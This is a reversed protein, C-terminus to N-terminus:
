ARAAALAGGPFAGLSPMSSNAIDSFEELIEVVKM